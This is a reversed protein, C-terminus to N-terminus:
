NIKEFVYKLKGCDWVRELGDLAAHERETMSPPTNVVRKQRSQKSFIQGTTIKFYFYDPGHKTHMKWGAKEYGNGNSLRFDAWSLIPSKLNLFALKSIKGLAGRITIDNKTCFRTLVWETSNRHHRGFTATSVLSNNHYINAVYQTSNSHGQIHVEDLLKHALKLEQSSSSWIVNCDRINLKISNLNLASSLFSLIQQRKNHWEHEFIHIIRIGLTQFFETKDIHYSRSKCSESHWFLGNYEIGLKLEPVYIDIEYNQVRYKHTNPYFQRVWDLIEQEAKSTFLKEPNDECWQKLRLRNEPLKQANDVGYRDQMSQKSKIRISSNQFPYDCGFIAQNKSKILATGEQSALFNTAGYKQINTSKRKLVANATTRKVAQSINNRISEIESLKTTGYKEVMTQQRKSVINRGDKSMKERLREARIKKFNQDENQRARQGGARKFSTRCTGPHTLGKGDLIRKKSLKHAEGCVVCKFYVEISSHRGLLDPNVQLEQLSQEKLILNLRDAESQHPLFYSM